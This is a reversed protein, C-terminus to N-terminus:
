QAGTGEPILRRYYATHVTYLYSYVLGTLVVGAFLTIAYGVSEGVGDVLGPEVLAFELGILPMFAVMSVGIWLISYGVVSLLNSRVLDVSRSFSDFARRNEVVIATNYFQLFLFVAFVFLFIALMGLIALGVVVLGAAGADAGGVGIGLAVGFIAVFMGVFAITFVM